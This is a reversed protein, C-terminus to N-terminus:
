LITLKLPLVLAGFQDELNVYGPIWADKHANPWSNVLAIWIPPSTSSAGMSSM